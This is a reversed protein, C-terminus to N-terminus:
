SSRAAVRDDKDMADACWGCLDRAFFMARESHPPVTGCMACRYGNAAAVAACEDARTKYEGKAAVM